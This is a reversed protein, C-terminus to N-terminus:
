RLRSVTDGTQGGPGTGAYAANLAPKQEQVFSRTEGTGSTCASLALVGALIAVAATRIM